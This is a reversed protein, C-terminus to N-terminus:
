RFNAGVKPHMGVSTSQVAFYKGEPIKDHDELALPRVVDRGALRNVWETLHMAKEKSRNLLYIVSAGEKAMM